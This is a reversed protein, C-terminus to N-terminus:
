CGRKATFGSVPNYNPLIGSLNVGGLAGQYLSLVTFTPLAAFDEHNEYVYRAEKRKCGLSLAYLIVDRETYAWDYKGFDLQRAAHLDM